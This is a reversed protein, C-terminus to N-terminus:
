RTPTRRGNKWHRHLKSGKKQCEGSGVTCREQTCGGRPNKKGKKTRDKDEELSPKERTTDKRRRKERKVTIVEVGTNLGQSEEEKPNDRKTRPADRSRKRM